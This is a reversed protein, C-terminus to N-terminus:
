YAFKQGIEALSSGLNVVTTTKASGGKQNLITVIDM